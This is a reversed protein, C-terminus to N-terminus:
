FQNKKSRKTCQRPLSLSLIDFDIVGVIRDSILGMINDPSPHGIDQAHGLKMFIM